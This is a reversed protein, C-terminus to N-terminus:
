EVSDLLHNFDPVVVLHQDLQGLRHCKSQEPAISVVEELFKVKETANVEFWMSGIQIRVRGSKYLVMRGLKGQLGHLTGNFEQSPGSANNQNGDPARPDSTNTPTTTSPTTTTSPSTAVAPLISPLQIFFMNDNNLLNLAEDHFPRLTNGPPSGKSDRGDETQLTKREIDKEADEITYEKIFKRPDVLPLPIPHQTNYPDIEVHPPIRALDDELEAMIIDGDRTTTTRSEPGKSSGSSGRSFPDLKLVGPKGGLNGVPKQYPPKKGPGRLIGPKPPPFTSLSSIAPPPIDDSVSEHTAAEKKRPGAAPIVPTFVIKKAGGPTKDPAPRIERKV